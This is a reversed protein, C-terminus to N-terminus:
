KVRQYIKRYASNQWDLFIFFFIAGGRYKAVDFILDGSETLGMRTKKVDIAGVIFPILVFGVNKNKLYLYGDKKLNTRIIRTRVVTDNKIYTVQIKNRNIAELQFNRTSTTDWASTDKLLKRDIEDFFDDYKWLEMPKWNRRDLDWAQYTGNLSKIFIESVPNPNKLGEKFSVCSQLIITFMILVRYQGCRKM